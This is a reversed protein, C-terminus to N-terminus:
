QPQRLALVASLPVENGGISLTSEAGTTDIQRVIDRVMINARVPSDDAIGVVRLQYTGPQRRDGFRDIGDWTFEHTGLGTEGTRELVLAGNKDVVQLSVSDAQKPLDYQWKVTEDPRLEGKDGIITAEKGLYGVSATIQQSALMAGLNELNKNTQIQQEVSSFQVLQDTFESSDMPDLPDQNQLQTTLLSLFTDFDGALTAKDSSAQSTQAAAAATTSAIDM